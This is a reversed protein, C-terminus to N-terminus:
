KKPSFTDANPMFDFTAVLLIWIAGILFDTLFYIRGNKQKVAVVDAIAFPNSCDFSDQKVALGLSLFFLLLDM